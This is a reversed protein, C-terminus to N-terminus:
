RRARVRPRVGARQARRDDGGARRHRLLLRDRRLGQEGVSPCNDSTACAPPPRPSPGAAQIADGKDKNSSPGFVNGWLQPQASPRSPTTATALEAPERPEAAAPVRGGRKRVITTNNYGVLAGWPNKTNISVTVKLQNPLEGAATTVTVGDSGTPSATRARSRRRPPTRRTARRERAHLRRRRARRRRGGEARPDRDAALPQVRDGPRRVGDARRVDLAFWVM